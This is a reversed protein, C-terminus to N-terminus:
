HVLHELPALLPIPDEEVQQALPAQLAQHDLPDLKAAVALLLFLAAQLPVTVSACNLLGVKMSYRM